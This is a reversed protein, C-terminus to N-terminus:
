LEPTMRNESLKGYMVPRSGDHCLTMFFSIRRTLYRYTALTVMTGRNGARFIEPWQPRGTHIDDYKEPVPYQFTPLSM